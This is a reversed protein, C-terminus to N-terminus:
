HEPLKIFGDVFWLDENFLRDEGGAPRLEKHCDCMYGVCTRKHKKSPNRNTPAFRLWYAGKDVPSGETFKITM